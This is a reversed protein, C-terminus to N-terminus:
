ILMDYTDRTKNDAMTNNDVIPVDKKKPTTRRMIEKEIQTIYIESSLLIFLQLLFILDAKIGGNGGLHVLLLIIIYHLLSVVCIYSLNTPSHNTPSFSFSVFLLIVEQIFLLLLLM